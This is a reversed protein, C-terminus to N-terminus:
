WAVAGTASQGGATCTIQVLSGNTFWGVQTPSGTPLNPEREGVFLFRRDAAATVRCDVSASRFDLPHVIIRNCSAETCPGWLTEGPRQCPNPTGDQCPAGRGVLVRPPPPPGSQSTLEGYDEGRGGPATDFLWVQIRHNQDFDTATVGRQVSFAGPGPLQVVQAAEGDVSIRLSAPDGNSSGSITWTIEMGNTTSTIDGLRGGLPGYSQVTKVDSTSCGRQAAFENCLRLQVPYAVDNTTTPVV